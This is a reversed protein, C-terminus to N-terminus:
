MDYVLDTGNAEKEVGSDETTKGDFKEKDAEAEAKTKHITGDKHHSPGYITYVKLGEEGAIVNHETGAPIVFASGNVINHEKGGIVAKGSGGDVRFFQDTDSHTELGIDENPKLSMLVLQLHKGTYLVERFNKNNVTDKEIDTVFGEKAATVGDLTAKILAISGITNNMIIM